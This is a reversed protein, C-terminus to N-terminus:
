VLLCPATGALNYPKELQRGGQRGKVPCATQGYNCPWVARETADGEIELLREDFSAM